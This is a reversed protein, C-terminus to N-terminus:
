LASGGGGGGGGCASTLSCKCECRSLGLGSSRPAIKLVLFPNTDLRIGKPLKRRFEELIKRVKPPLAGQEDPGDRDFALKGGRM